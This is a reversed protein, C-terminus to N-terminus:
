LEASRNTKASTFQHEDTRLCKVFFAFVMLSVVVSGASVM